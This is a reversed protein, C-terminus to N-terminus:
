VGAQRELEFARKLYARPKMGRQALLRLEKAQRLLITREDPQSVKPFELGNEGFIEVRLREQAAKKARKSMRGSPSSLAIAEVMTDKM